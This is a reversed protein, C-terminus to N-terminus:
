NMSEPAVLRDRRPRTVQDAPLQDTLSMYALVLSVVARSRLRDDALGEDDLARRVRALLGADNLTEETFTEGAMKIGRLFDQQGYFLKM